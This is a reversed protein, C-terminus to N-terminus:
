WEKERGAMAIQHHEAGFTANHLNESNCLFATRAHAWEEYFTDHFEDRSCSDSIAIIGSEMDDSLDFYGLRNGMRVVPRVYCRVSFMLPFSEAAWKRMKKLLPKQWSKNTV